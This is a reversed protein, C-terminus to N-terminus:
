LERTLVPTLPPNGSVMPPRALSHLDPLPAEPEPSPHPSGRPRGPGASAGGSATEKPCSGSASPTTGPRLQARLESLSTVRELCLWPLPFM